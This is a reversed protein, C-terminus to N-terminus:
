QFGRTSSLSDIPARDKGTFHAAGTLLGPWRRLAATVPTSLTPRMAIQAFLAALRLRPVFHRKWAHAYRRQLLLARRADIASAPQQELLGVLLRASQLAMAIGEGILPHSEGGANGIRFVGCPASLRIGPRIPGVSLWSGDRRADALADGARPCSRRLTAEVAMGAAARPIAARSARLADRRICCALTTQGGDAVVIGGYGGPFALVPLLGPPLATGHFRAKFAFLDSARRLVGERVAGHELAFAPAMEWSGHADIVIAASIVIVADFARPAARESAREQIRCQFNGPLGGVSRVKAPQLVRVGLARARELLLSDLVDRGLARGFRYPGASCEPFEEAVSTAGSMWGVERLEVGARRGFEAGIGLEDLLGLAGASICEGCVKQRPYEDQEVLVVRWGSRALRIAASAGAPGGGVVLADADVVPASRV